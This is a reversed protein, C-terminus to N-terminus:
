KKVIKKSVEEKENQIKVLYVGNSLFHLDLVEMRNKLERKQLIRGAYDYILASGTKFDYPTVITVYRETPVPYLQISRNEEVKEVPQDKLKVIWYDKLGNKDGTAESRSTGSLLYGGDRTQLTNLLRDSDKGGLQKEWLKNGQTDVKIVVYDEIGKTEEGETNEYSTQTYGSILYTHDKGKTLGTAIDTLGMNYTKDFKVVGLDDIKTLQYDTGEEINSNSYSLLLYDGDQTIQIQVPVDDGIGGYTQQWLIKGEQTLHILWADGERLNQAKKDGTAEESNSYGYVIYGKNDPLVEVGKLEDNYNGGM